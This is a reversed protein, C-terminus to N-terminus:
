PTGGRYWRVLTASHRVLPRSQWTLTAEVRNMAPSQEPTVVIKWEPATLEARKILQEAIPQLAEHTPPSQLAAHELLNTVVGLAQERQDIQRRKEASRTLVPILLGMITILLTAAVTAEILMSGRRQRPRFLPRIIRRTRLSM